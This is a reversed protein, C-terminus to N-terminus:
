RSKARAPSPRPGARTPSGREPPSEEQIRRWRELALLADEPADLFPDREPPLAAVPGSASPATPPPRVDLEEPGEPRATAGSRGRCASRHDRFSAWTASHAGCRLCTYGAFLEPGSRTFVSGSLDGPPPHPSRVTGSRDAVGRGNGV